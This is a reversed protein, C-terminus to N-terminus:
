RSSSTGRAEPDGDAATSAAPSSAPTISGTSTGSSTTADATDSSITRDPTTGTESTRDPTPNMGAAKGEQQATPQSSHKGARADAAVQGKRLERLERRSAASRRAGRSVLALGLGLLVVALAGAVFMALPSANVEIVNLDIVQSTTTPALVVVVAAGAAIAILLLGLVIM